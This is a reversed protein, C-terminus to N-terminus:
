ILTRRGAVFLKGDSTAVVGGWSNGAFSETFVAEGTSDNIAFFLDASCAVYVYSTGVACDIRKQPLVNSGAFDWIEAGTSANIKRVHSSWDYIASNAYKMHFSANNTTDRSANWNETALNAASYSRYKPTTAHATAVWVTTGDTTGAIYTEGAPASRSSIETLDELNLTKLTASSSLSIAIVGSAVEVFTPLATSWSATETGSSNYVRLYKGGTGSTDVVLVGGSSDARYVADSPVSAISVTQAGTTPNFAAIQGNSGGAVWIAGDSAECIGQECKNANAGGSNGMSGSIAGAASLHAGPSTMAGESSYWEVRHTGVNWKMLVGNDQNIWGGSTAYLYGDSSYFICRDSIETASFLFRRRGRDMYGIPAGTGPNLEVITFSSSDIWRTSGGGYKRRRPSRRAKPAGHRRRETRMRNFDRAEDETLAYAKRAM